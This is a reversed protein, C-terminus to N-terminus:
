DNFIRPVGGPFQQRQPQRQPQQKKAPQKQQTKPGPGPVTGTPPSVIKLVQDAAREGSEWAGGVTGWLTEHAAEGAYFIRDRLPETMLIRRSPQGGVSAASFAGQVYPAFAWQTAHTRKVAKRVDAGFLKDLWEMAFATMERPGKAALDRAFSGGVDVYALSSGGVNGLLAATQKGDAKEFVLDDRALGFPNDPIELAIREYHGLRLRSLAELQRKPLDPIMKGDALVNTSVTVIVTRAQLAGKATEITIGGRAQPVIRTVPTSLQVPLGEGLKALLAGFGQRCYADVDRENSRQFDAASLDAFDKGCGFAGLYFEISQQWEGLDKPMAQALSVDTKGRAADEIARRARVLTAFFQELEGERANRRGIRVKQGPPAPYIDLGTRPALKVLAHLDPAHLWHAGIDFPTGFITTDTVCRGGIREDAELIVVRRGAATIKRAAAIGAAGAGVIAVDTEAAIAMRGWAPLTAAGAAIALFSRRSIADM